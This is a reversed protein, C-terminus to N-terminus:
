LSEAPVPLALPVRDWTLCILRVTPAHLLIASGGRRDELQTRHWDAARSTAGSVASALVSDRLKVEARELADFRVGLLLWDSGPHEPAPEQGEAPHADWRLLLTANHEPEAYLGIWSSGRLDFRELFAALSAPLGQEWPLTSSILDLGLWEPYQYM